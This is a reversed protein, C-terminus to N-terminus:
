SQAPDSAESHVWCNVAFRSDAFARSPCTIPMVEHPMWSPFAVLRNHVPAIDEHLAGPNISHLRLAGGEFAKPETHFYYVLSLVRRTKMDIPGTRMDIHRRYFDGDNHCALDTEITSTDFFSVGLDIVLGAIMPEIRSILRRRWDKFLKRTLQRSHRIEPRVSGDRVCSPAFLAEQELTWDLLEKADSAPLIGDRVVFRGIQDLPSVPQTMTM